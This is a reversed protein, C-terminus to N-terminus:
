KPLIKVYGEEDLASSPLFATSPTSKSIANIVKSTVRKEGNTFDIEYKKSGDAEEVEKVNSLRHGFVVDVGADNLLQLTQDRIDDPLDESSLLKDRSHVLTVKVEPKYVALEAAMEIGVAGGGVVVVGHPTPEMSKIHAECDRLYEERTLAAPVTPWARRLGTANVFYDYEHTVAENTGHALVTATKAACDVHSLSGQVFKLNPHQAAPIDSFKLWPKRAYEADAM